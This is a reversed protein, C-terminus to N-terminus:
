LLDVVAGDPEDVKRAIVQTGMRYVQGCDLCRVHYAFYGDFHGGGGCPCSFDMCLDTGKWQIFMEADSGEPRTFPFEQNDNV